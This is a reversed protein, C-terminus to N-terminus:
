SHAVDANRTTSGLMKKSGHCIFNVKVTNSGNGSNGANTRRVYLRGVPAGAVIFERQGGDIIEHGTNAAGAPNSSIEIGDTGTADVPYLSFAGVEPDWDLTHWNNDALSFFGHKQASDLLLKTTAGRTADLFLASLSVDPWAQVDERPSNASKFENGGETTRNAVAVLENTGRKTTAADAM